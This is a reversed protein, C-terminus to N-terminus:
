QAPKKNNFGISDIDVEKGDIKMIFHDSLKDNQKGETAFKRMRESVFKLYEANSIQQGDIKRFIEIMTDFYKFKEQM